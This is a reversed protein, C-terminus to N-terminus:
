KKQKEEKVKQIADYLLKLFAEDNMAMEAARKESEKLNREMENLVPDNIMAQAAKELDKKVLMQYLTSLFGM